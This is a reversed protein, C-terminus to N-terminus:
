RSAESKLVDAHCEEPYCWCGLAKGNLSSLKSLLSPKHPLYHEAYARIVDGRTGDDPLVFPNGWPSKRDVREYLGADTAWAILSTHSRLSVVITEGDRLMRLLDREDDSWSAFIREQRIEEVITEVDIPLDAAAERLLDETLQHLNDDNVDRVATAKDVGLQEAVKQMSMGSRKLLQAKVKRVERRRDAIDGVYKSVTQRTVGLHKAIIVVSFDPNATAIERAIQRMDDGAIRDGNRASLSAAYLKAPVGAPIEHYEVAISDREAQRHARARHMGDLLRNTGAELVIPPFAEDARLAEAYRDVTPQSWAARPYITDDFVISDLAIDTV